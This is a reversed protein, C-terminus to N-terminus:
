VDGVFFGYSHTQTQSHNRSIGPSCNQFANDMSMVSQFHVFKYSFFISQVSQAPANLRPTLDPTHSVKQCSKCKSTHQTFNDLVHERKLRGNHAWWSDDTFGPDAFQPGGGGERQM